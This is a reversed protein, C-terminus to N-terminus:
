GKPPQDACSSEDSRHGRFALSFNLKESSLKSARWLARGVDHTARACQGGGRSAVPRVVARVSALRRTLRPRQAFKPDERAVKPPPHIPPVNERTVAAKRPVCTLYAPSYDFSDLCWTTRVPTPLSIPTEIRAYARDRPHVSPATRFAMVALRIVGLESPVMSGSRAFWSHSRFVNAPLVSACAAM